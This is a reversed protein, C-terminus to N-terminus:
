HRSPPNPQPVHGSPPPLDSRAAVTFQFIAGRPVNSTAWLRGGHAEVISRCISLGMGLGSAKTTYFPAFVREAIEPNFGPGSDRVAVLVHDSDVEGTIILLERAGDSAGSMAEMANIVLNLLVQQLQVRDGQILPLRDSLQAQVSAGYKWAEGHTLEIVERIAQNIDVSEKRPPAKKMLERIRGIVDAARHGANVIGRFMERAEEVDPPQVSLWRLGAEASTVTAGIPQTVEHAISAALQGITDVRNAHALETQVEHYRRESERAEQEARKRETLDLVFAVGEKGEAEFATGGIMIPVRRGDKRLYEKEFPQARGTKVIEALAREDAERWEPPTLDTWRMRGAVLDEREYGVMGLFADNAELIAGDAQWVVIGIINADVLRRIKAERAALDRYLRTNELAIAAQSVLLKLVALRAPAFVRPALNNELYLMGVLKAQTLLPLGLVSRARRQQIYPDAAFSNEASADDLIVSEQTRLVYHLVSEPLAIAAVAEDRLQVTVTDGDTTSEAAIREGVGQSLILLAREAGAQAMATRM